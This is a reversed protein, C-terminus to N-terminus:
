STSAFGCGPSERRSFAQIMSRAPAPNHFGPSHGRCVYDDNAAAQRSEGGGDGQRVQSKLDGQEFFIWPEAPARGRVNEGVTFGDVIALMHHQTAAGVQFVEVPAKTDGILNSIVITENKCAGAAKSADDLGRFQRSRKVQRRGEGSEAKQAPLVPTNDRTGQESNQPVAPPRRKM